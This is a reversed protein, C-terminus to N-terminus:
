RTYMKHSRLYVCQITIRFSIRTIKKDKQYSKGDHIKITQFYYQSMVSLYLVNMEITFWVEYSMYASLLVMMLNYAILIPKLEFPQLNKM